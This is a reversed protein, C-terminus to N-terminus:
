APVGILVNFLRYMGLRLPATNEELLSSAEAKAPVAVFHYARASFRWKKTHGDAAPGAAREIADYM